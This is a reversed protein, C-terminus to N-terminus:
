GEVPVHHVPKRGSKRPRRRKSSPAGRREAVGEDTPRRVGFEWLLERVGLFARLVSRAETDDSAREEWRAIEADLSDAIAELMTASAGDGRANQLREILGALPSLLRHTQSLEGTSALAVADILAALAALAERAAADAHERAQALAQEASEPPTRSGATRPGDSM